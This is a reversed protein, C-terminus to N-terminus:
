NSDKGRQPLDRTDGQAEVLKLIRFGCDGLSRYWGQRLEDLECLRSVLPTRSSAGWLKSLHLLVCDPDTRLLDDLFSEDYTVQQALFGRGDVFVQPTATGTNPFWCQLVPHELNRELGDLVVRGKFPRPFNLSQCTGFVKLHLFNESLFRLLSHGGEFYPDAAVVARVDVEQGRVVLDHLCSYNFIDRIVSLGLARRYAWAHFNRPDHSILLRTLRDEKHLLEDTARAQVCLLRHHWAPYSKPNSALACENIRLFSSDRCESLVHWAYYDDPVIQVLTKLTERDSRNEMLVSLSKAEDVPQEAEHKRKGHHIM